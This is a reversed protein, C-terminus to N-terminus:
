PFDTNKNSHGHFTLSVTNKVQEEAGLSEYYSPDFVNLCINDQLGLCCRPLLLWMLAPCPPVARRWLM